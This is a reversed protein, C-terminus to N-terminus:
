SVSPNILPVAKVTLGGTRFTVDIVIGSKQTHFNLDIGQGKLSAKLKNFDSVGNELKKSIATHIKMKLKKKIPIKDKDISKGRHQKKSVTLGYKRGHSRLDQGDPEQVM